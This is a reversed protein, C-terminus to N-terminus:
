TSRARAREHESSVFNVIIALLPSDAAPLVLSPELYEFKGHRPLSLEAFRDRHDSLSFIISFRRRLSFEALVIADTEAKFAAFDFISSGHVKFAVRIM